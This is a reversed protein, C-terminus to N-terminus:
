FQLLYYIHLSESVSVNPSQVLRTFLKQQLQYLVMMENDNPPRGIEADSLERGQQNGM